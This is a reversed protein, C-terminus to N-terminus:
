WLGVFHRRPQLLQQLSGLPLAQLVTGAIPAGAPLAGLRRAEGNSDLIVDDPALAARCEARQAVLVRDGALLGAVRSARVPHLDVIAASLQRFTDAGAALSAPAADPDNLRFSKMACLDPPVGCDCPGPEDWSPAAGAAAPDPTPASAPPEDARRLRVPALHPPPLIRDGAGPPDRAIVHLPPLGPLTAVLELQFRDGRRCAAAWLTGLARTVGFRARLELYADDSALTAATPARLTALAAGGMAAGAVVVAEEGAGGDAGEGGDSSARARVGRAGLWAALAGAESAFAALGLPWHGDRDRAGVVLAFGRGADLGRRRWVEADLGDAGVAYAVLYRMALVAPEHQRLRLGDLVDDIRRTRLALVAGPPPELRSAVSAERDFQVHLM